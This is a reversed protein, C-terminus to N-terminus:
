CSPGPLPAAWSEGAFRVYAEHRHAVFWPRIRRFFSGPPNCCNSTSNAPKANSSRRCTLSRRRLSSVRFLEDLPLGRKARSQAANTSRAVIEDIRARKCLRGVTRRNRHHPRRTQFGSRDNEFPMFGHIVFGRQDHSAAHAVRNGGAGTGLVLIHRKLRDQDLVSLAFWRFIALMVFSAIASMALIGRWLALDPLFYFIFGSAISAILFIAVATRLMMGIFGERVHSEYVGMAVISLLVVIAYVLASLFHSLDGPEPDDTRLWFALYVSAIVLGAECAAIILYPTHIYHRLIRIHPVGAESQQLASERQDASLTGNHLNTVAQRPVM